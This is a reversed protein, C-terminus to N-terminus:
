IGFGLTQDSPALPFQSSVPGLFYVHDLIFMGSSEKPLGPDSQHRPLLIVAKNFGNGKANYSEQVEGGPKTSSDEM